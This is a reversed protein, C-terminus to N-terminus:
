NDVQGVAALLVSVLGAVLVPRVMRLRSIALTQRVLSQLPNCFMCESFYFM